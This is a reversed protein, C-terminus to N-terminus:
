VRNQRGQQMQVRRCTRSSRCIGPGIEEEIVSDINEKTIERRRMFEYAWDAHKELTEDARLDKGALIANKLLDMERKLRAPLVALGM